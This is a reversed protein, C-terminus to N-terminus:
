GEPTQTVLVVNSTVNLARKVNLRLSHEFDTSNSGWTADWAGVQISVVNFNTMPSNPSLWLKPADPFNDTTLLKSKGPHQTIYNKHQQIFNWRHFSICHNNLCCSRLGNRENRENKHQFPVAIMTDCLREFILSKTSTGLLLLSISTANATHAAVDLSAALRRQELLPNAAVLLLHSSWLLLLILSM